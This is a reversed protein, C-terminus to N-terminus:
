NIKIPELKGEAILADEAIEKMKENILKERKEETTEVIPEKYVEINELDKKTAVEYYVYGDKLPHEGKPLDYKAITNGYRDKIYGYGTKVEFTGAYSISAILLVLFLTFIIRM